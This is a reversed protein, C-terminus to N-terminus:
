REPLAIVVFRPATASNSTSTQLTLQEVPTSGLLNVANWPVRPMVEEVRYTRTSSDALTLIVRDGVRAEWLSLFMGTQAHAYLYINSGGDPWASGPYHAAKHLPADIGDGEVIPMDIGLRSIEIRVAVIGAGSSTPPTVGPRTSPAGTPPTPSPSALRTEDPAGLPASSAPSIAATAFAGTDNSNLGQLIAAIALAFAVVALSVAAIRRRVRRPGLSTM